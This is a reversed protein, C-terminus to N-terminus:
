RSHFLHIQSIKIKSFFYNRFSKFYFGSTYSRPTIFILEGNCSLLNASISMFLSYINPQGKNIKEAIKARLDSKNLKFYPPNSIILDFKKHNRELLTNENKIVESNDVIFDEHLLKYNFKINKDKLWDKLYDLVQKTYDIINGDTEYAKLFISNITDNKKVLHEILSASLIGTGIGPDLINLCSGNFNSLSSMFTAIKLPTFFQGKGKKDESSTENSYNHGIRNAYSSPPETHTEHVKM